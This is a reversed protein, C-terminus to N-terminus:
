SVTHNCICQLSWEGTSASHAGVMVVWISPTTVCAVATRLHRGHLRASQLALPPLLLPKYTCHCRVQVKFSPTFQRDQKMPVGFEAPATVIALTVEHLVNAEEHRGASMQRAKEADSDQLRWGNLAATAHEEHGCAYWVFQQQLDEVGTSVM